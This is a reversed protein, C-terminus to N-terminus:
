AVTAIIALAASAVTIEGVGFADFM